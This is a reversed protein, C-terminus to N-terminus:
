TNGANRIIPQVTVDDLSNFLHELYFLAVLVIFVVIINRLLVSLISFYDTNLIFFGGFGLWVPNPTHSFLTFHM